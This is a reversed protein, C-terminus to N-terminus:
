NYFFYLITLSSGTLFLIIGMGRTTNKVSSRFRHHGKSDRFLKHTNNFIQPLSFVFGTILLLIGIVAIKESGELM